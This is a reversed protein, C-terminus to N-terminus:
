LIGYWQSDNDIWGSANYHYYDHGYPSITGTNSYTTDDYLYETADNATNYLFRGGNSIGQFSDCKIYQDNPASVGPLLNVTFDIPGSGRGGSYIYTDTDTMPGGVQRYSYAILRETTTTTKKAGVQKAPRSNLFSHEKAGARFSALLIVILIFSNRMFTIKSLKTRIYLQISGM